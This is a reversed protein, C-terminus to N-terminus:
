QVLGMTHQHYSHQDGSVDLVGLMSGRPDFIPVASCTLFGNARMFHEDAHVVTPAENMLATGIENTGKSPESWDAGPTLAVRSARQLFDDHGVSHLVTGQADTLVVMSQSAVIQELLLEMVPVAHGYLRLNRERAVALEARRVASHDPKCSRSLGLATCREHSRVIADLHATDPTEM